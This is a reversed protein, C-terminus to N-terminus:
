LSFRGGYTPDFDGDNIPDASEQRYMNYTFKKDDEGNVNALAGVEYVM